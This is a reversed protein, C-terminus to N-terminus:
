ADSSNTSGIQGDLRFAKAVSFPIVFRKWVVPELVYAPVCAHSDELGKERLERVFAVYRHAGDILQDGSPSAKRCVIVPAVDQDFQETALHRPDLSGSEELRLALYPDIALAVPKCYESCWLRASFVDYYRAKGTGDDEQTFIEAGERGYKQYNSLLRRSIQNSAM